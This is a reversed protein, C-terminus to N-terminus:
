APGGPGGPAGPAGPLTPGEPLLPSRPSLTLRRHKHKDQLFFIYVHYIKTLKQEKIKIEKRCPGAPEAPGEPM